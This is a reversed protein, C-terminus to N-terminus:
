GEIIRTGPHHRDLHKRVIKLNRSNSRYFFDFMDGAVPVSGLLTDFGVNAMMRLLKWKPMDLNRAEWILYAGIVAALIDGAVPVVGILADLGVHRNLGPIVFARELVKELAEVRRSVSAPDRGLPLTSAIAEARTPGNM